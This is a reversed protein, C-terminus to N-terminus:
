FLFKLGVKITRPLAGDSTVQGFASSTPETIPAEFENPHNLVNFFEGRLEFQYREKFRFKKILSVDWANFGGTRVSDFSMPFTRLNDALQQAPDKVFGADTNFWEDVTRQGSPLPIDNINGRFIVNGFTYAWGSRYTWVPALQWGGLVANAAWNADGLLAKGRGVPLEFIGSFTLVKPRDYFSIGRYPMPDGANLYSTADIRKSWTFAAQGTFGNMFRREARVQLANYSSYGQYNKATVSTFEPFPTLLQTRSITAGNLSTGPILGQLPNSVNASLYDITPQDRFPSTSLYQDPLANYDRSAPLRISRSGVYGVEVLVQRPLVTQINVAWRMAYPTKINANYFSVGSGLNTQVGLSNGPPTLVGDPFPNGLTAIFTQGNDNTPVLLTYQSYGEQLAFNGAPVGIEIPFIGFGGRVAVNNAARYAVGFRPAFNNYSSNWLNRPQGGVGAFQLGGRVQFQDVPLAPDPNLAYNAQAQASIPQAANFDFTTVSRNFRERTPGEYEWRLGLNLTLRQNVRWDDQFYLGYYTSQSAESDNRDLEGTTPIGLLLAALGQGIGGPSSPSNDFPGQTYTSDFIFSGAAAGPYFTNKRYARLDAGVKLEHSRHQITAGAFLSHDNDISYYFGEQGLNSLGETFVSPFAIWAPQILGTFQSGFGLQSPDFGLRDPRGAANFRNFGYRLDMVVTPSVTYVYDVAAQQGLGVFSEGTAIDNWWKRYPGQKNQNQTLRISLRQRETISHSVNIINNYYLEPSMYNQNAYNNTGDATGTTNPAPYHKLMAQAIPSIRDAPIVNGAFPQISFRGNGAPAITAPDYIQYQPGLALLDSFDGNAEKATPVTGLFGDPEALNYNEYSYFFFTRNRGDYIKPIYVPGSFTAGFRHYGFNGRPEGYKNNFFDNANWGPKGISVWATGHPQNTGTKLSVNMITGSTHGESADFATEVKFEQVADVPPSNLFSTGWNTQTNPVGDIAYDGTNGGSGNISLGSALITQLEDTSQRINGARYVDVVGPELYILSFASGFQNPLDALRRTDIIQGLNANATQLLPTTATVQVTQTTQGIELSFDLQLRDDIRLEVNREVMKFGTAVVTVTYMGPILYPVTYHGQDNTQTENKFHTGTNLVTITARPVVAGTSDFIQGVITARSEQAIAQPPAIVLALAGVIPLLLLWTARPGNFRFNQM